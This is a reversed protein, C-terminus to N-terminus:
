TSIREPMGEIRAKFNRLTGIMFEEPDAFIQEVVKGVAGAPPVYQLTLTVEVQRDPLNTFTVQGSTKLDGGDKSNWAVRRNTELRTAEVDWEVLKGLPGEMVWHSTREGTPTVAKLDKMFEPYNEFETWADYIEALDGKVIISKTMQTSM